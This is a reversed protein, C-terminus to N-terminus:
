ETRLNKAWWYILGYPHYKGLAIAKEREDDSVMNRKQFFTLVEFVREEGFYDVLSLLTRQNHEEKFISKYLNIIENNLKQKM